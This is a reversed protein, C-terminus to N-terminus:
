GQCCKKLWPGEGGERCTSPTSLPREAPGPLRARRGFAAQTTAGGGGGDIDVNADGGERRDQQGDNKETAVSTNTPQKLFSPPRGQRDPRWHESTSRTLLEPHRLASGQPANHRPRQVQRFSGAAALPPELLSPPRAALARFHQWPYIFGVFVLFGFFMPLFWFVFNLANPM